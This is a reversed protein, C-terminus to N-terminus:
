WQILPILKRLSKMEQM